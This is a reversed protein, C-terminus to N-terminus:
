GLLQQLKTALMANGSVKLKGQFYLGMASQPNDSITKWDDSTLELTCDPTGVEGEKVGMEDGKLDVTWTGGDDGSIKFLFVANIAKARDPDSAIKKPLNTTFDTKADPM